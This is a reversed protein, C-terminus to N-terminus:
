ISEGFISTVEYNIGNVRLFTELKLPYPAICPTRRGRPCQHLVLVGPQKADGEDPSGNKIKVPSTTEDISFIVKNKSGAPNSERAAKRKRHFYWAAVGSIGLMTALSVGMTLTNKDVDKFLTEFYRVLRDKEAQIQSLLGDSAAPTHYIKAGKMLVSSGPVYNSVPVPANSLNYQPMSNDM